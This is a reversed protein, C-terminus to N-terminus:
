IDELKRKLYNFERCAAMGRATIYYKQYDPLLSEIRSIMNYRLLKACSKDLQSPELDLTDKLLGYTISREEAIKELVNLTADDGIAGLFDDVDM